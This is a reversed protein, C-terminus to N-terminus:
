GFAEDGLLHLASEISRLYIPMAAEYESPALREYKRVSRLDESMDEMIHIGPVERVWGGGTPWRSADAFFQLERRMIDAQSQESDSAAYATEINGSSGGNDDYQSVELRDGAAFPPVEALQSLDLVPYDLYTALEERSLIGIEVLDQLALIRGAPPLAGALARARAQRPSWQPGFWATLEGHIKARAEKRERGSRGAEGNASMKSMWGHIKSVVIRFRAMRGQLRGDEDVFHGFVPRRPGFM